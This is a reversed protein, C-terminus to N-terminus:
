NYEIKSVKSSVWTRIQSKQQGIPGIKYGHTPKQWFHMWMLQVQLYKLATIEFSLMTIRVKSIDM